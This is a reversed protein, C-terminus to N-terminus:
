ACPLLRVDDGRISMNRYPYIIEDHRPCCCSCVCEVRHRLRPPPLDQIEEGVALARHVVEDALESESLRLHRLM